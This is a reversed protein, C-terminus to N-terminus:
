VITAGYLSITIDNASSCSAVLSDGTGANSLVLYTTIQKFDNAPITLTDLLQNADATTVGSVPNWLNLTVDASSVNCIWILKVIVITSAPCQYLTTEGSGVALTTSLKKETLTAM